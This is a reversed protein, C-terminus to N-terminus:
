MNIAACIYGVYGEGQVPCCPEGMVMNVSDQYQDGDKALYIWDLDVYGIVRVNVNIDAFGSARRGFPKQRGTKMRAYREYRGHISCGGVM